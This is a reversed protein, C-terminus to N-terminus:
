LGQDAFLCSGQGGLGQAPEQGPTLHHVRTSIRGEERAGSPCMVPGRDKIFVQLAFPTYANPDLNTALSEFAVLRGGDAAQGTGSAFNGEDGDATMSVRTLADRAVDYIFTDGTDRIDDLVLNNAWSLFVVFGGDASINAGMWSVNNGATSRDWSRSVLTTRGTSRDRLYIDPSNGPDNPALRGDSEFAVRNGDGSISPLFSTGDSPMGDSSMSILETYGLARDRVFIDYFGNQGGAVLNEANSGFAVFRGDASISCAGSSGSAQLGASSLSALEIAGTTMDKVFVDHQSNADGPVLNSSSSGFCVIRGDGSISGAGSPGNGLTSDSSSSVLRTESSFRDWVFVDAVGNTDGAVLNTALSDYAVYRGDASISPLDTYSGENPPAAGVGLSVQQLTGAGPESLLVQRGVGVTGIDSARSVFVVFRGDPTIRPNWSSASGPAGSPSSSLRRISLHSGSAPAAVLILCVTTAALALRRGRLSLMHDPQVPAGVRAARGSHPDRDHRGRGHGRHLIWCTSVVLLIKARRM